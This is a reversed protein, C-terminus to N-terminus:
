KTLAKLEQEIRGILESTFSRTDVYMNISILTTYVISVNVGLKACVRLARYLFGSSNKIGAGRIIIGTLENIIVPKGCEIKKRANNIAVISRKIDEPKVIMLIGTDERGPINTAQFYEVDVGLEYLAATIEEGIGPKNEVKPICIFTTDFKASVEM